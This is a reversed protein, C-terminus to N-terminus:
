KGACPNLPLGSLIPLRLVDAKTFGEVGLEALRECALRVQTDADTMTVEEITWRSIGEEAAIIVNREDADFAVDHVDGTPDFTQISETQGLRWLSAQASEAGTAMLSGDKSFRISTVLDSHGAFAAIPEPTGVRWLTLQGDDTGVALREGDPHFRLAAVSRTLLTQVPDPKGFEYIEIGDEMAVAIRRGDETVDFTSIWRAAGSIKWDPADAGPKWIALENGLENRVVFRGSPTFGEVTSGRVLDITHLIKGDAVRVIEVRGNGAAGPPVAQDQRIDRSIMSGDGSIHTAQLTRDLGAGGARWIGYGTYQHITAAEGDATLRAGYILSEAREGQEPYLSTFARALSWVIIEGTPSGTVALQEHRLFAGASMRAAVGFEANPASQTPRFLSSSQKESLMLMSANGDENSVGGIVRVVPDDQEFIQYDGFQDDGSFAHLRGNTAGVILLPAIYAASRAEVGSNLRGVRKGPEGFNWSWLDGDISVLQVVDQAIRGVWIPYNPFGEGSAGDSSLRLAKVREGDSLRWEEIIVPGEPDFDVVSRPATLVTGAEHDVWMAAVEDGFTRGLSGDSLQLVQAGAPAFDTLAEGWLLLVSQGDPLLAAEVVNRDGRLAFTKLPERKGVEWVRAKGGEHFSIFQEGGALAAIATVAEGTDVRSVMRNGAFARALAERAAPYGNPRMWNEIPGKSAAPDGSLAVLMALVRDGQSTLENAERAFLAANREASEAFNRVAFWMGAIAAAVLAVGVAMSSIALARLRRDTKVKAEIAEQREAVAAEALKVAEERQAVQAQTELARKQEADHSAAIFRTIVELPAKGAKRDLWGQAEVLASGRLLRDDTPTADWLFAAESYRTQLRLWEPDQKLAESLAIIGSYFGSNPIKADAYFPIRNLADLEAPAKFGEVPGPTVPLVLKGLREAEAVEWACIESSASTATLVFVVADAELILKGLRERWKEGGSMDHRDLMPQFGKDKLALVLQDAFANDARSYSIFVKLSRAESAM